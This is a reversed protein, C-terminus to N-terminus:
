RALRRLLAGLRALVSVVGFAMVVTCIALGPLVMGAGASFDAWDM